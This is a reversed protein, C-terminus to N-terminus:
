LTITVSEIANGAGVVLVDIQEPLSGPTNM